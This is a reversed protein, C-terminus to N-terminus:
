FTHRISPSEEKALLMHIIVQYAVLGIVVVCSNRCLTVAFAPRKGEAPLELSELGDAM